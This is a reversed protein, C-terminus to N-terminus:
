AKPLGRLAPDGFGERTLELTSLPLLLVGLWGAMLLPVVLHSHKGIDYLGDGFLAVFFVAWMLVSLLVVFQLRPLRSSRGPRLLCWLLVALCPLGLLLSNYVPTSIRPFLKYLTAHHRSVLGSKVGEVQGFGNFIWEKTMPMAQQLLATFDGPRRWAAAVLDARSFDPFADCLPALGQDFVPWSKGEINACAVPLNLADLSAQVNSSASLLSSVVNLNNAMEMKEGRPTFHGSAQFLLPLVGVFVAAVAFLRRRQGLLYLAVLVSLLLALPMHQPKSLGLGLLGVIFPLAKWVGPQETALVVVGVLALYLFYVASFETYFTGLYLTIGPDSLVLLMVLANLAFAYHHQKRWFYVSALLVTLFLFFAKTAAVTKMSVLKEHTVQNKLKALEIAVGTFVLESSPFCHTELTKDLTYRRLPASPTGQTLDIHKDAPWIQHCAQIRIMDYSNAYALLPEHLAFSALRGFGMCLLFCFVARLVTVSVPAPM